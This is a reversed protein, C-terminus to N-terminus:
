ITGCNENTRKNLRRAVFLLRGVRTTISNAIISAKPAFTV